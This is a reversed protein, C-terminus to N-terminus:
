RIQSRTLCQTTYAQFEFEPTSHLHQLQGPYWALLYVRKEQHKLDFEIWAVDGGMILEGDDREM